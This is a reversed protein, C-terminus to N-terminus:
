DLPFVQVGDEYLQILWQAESTTNAAFAYTAVGVGAINEIRPDHPGRVERSVHGAVSSDDVRVPGEWPSYVVTWGGHAALPGRESIELPDLGFDLLTKAHRLNIGKTAQFVEPVGAGGPRAAVECLSLGAPSDFLECHFVDDQIPWGATLKAIFHSARSLLREDDVTFSSLPTRGGTTYCPRVYRSVQFILDSGVVLGDIHLVPSPNFVEVLFQSADGLGEVHKLVSQWDALVTVGRSGSEARPKLVYRREAVENQQWGGIESALMGYETPLGIDMARQKMRWKDRVLAAQVRDKGPIGLTERLDAITSLFFESGTSLRDIPIQSHLAGVAERISRETFDGIEM